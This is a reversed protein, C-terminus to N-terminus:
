GDLITLRRPPPGGRLRARPAYVAGPLLPPLEKPWTELLRLHGQRDERVAVVADYPYVVPAEHWPGRVVAAPISRIGAAEFHTEYLLSDSRTVHGVARGDYLYRVAHRFTMDFRFTGVPDLLVILTGPAPDPAIATLEVLVRRQGPYASWTEWRKQFEATKETGLLVVWAGLLVVAPLRARGPLLAAAAMVGAALLVGVGPASFFETRFAGHTTAAFPLYCALAWLGGTGATLILERPSAKAEEPVGGTPMRRRGVAVLGVAFLVLAAPVTAGPRAWTPRLLPALHRRLQRVTGEALQGPRVGEAFGAQYSVRGPQTWLPLAARVAGAALVVCAVLTWAALRAPQRRGGAALFLLPVLALPVLAAEHSLVAVVAVGVACLALVIRRRLWAELALWAALLVGFTCGSYLIMQVSALRTGDGPAWVITFAGALFALREAGRLLRRVILFVLVGGLGLWLVHLLLFGVLRNPLIAWAPWDWVLNLPRNAWPIDVIGQSLLSIIVWEDSAGFNTPRVVAFSSAALALLCFAALASRATSVFGYALM